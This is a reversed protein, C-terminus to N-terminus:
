SVEECRASAKVSRHTNTVDEGVAIAGRFFSAADPFSRNPYCELIEQMIKDAKLAENGSYICDAPDAGNHYFDFGVKRICSGMRPVLAQNKLYQFITKLERLMTIVNSSNKVRPVSILGSPFQLSYYIKEQPKEYYGPIMMLPAYTKLGYHEIYLQQILTTPACSESNDAVKFGVGAGLGLSVIYKATEILYPEIKLHAKALEVGLPEWMFNHSLQAFSNKADQWANEFLFLRLKFWDKDVETQEFWEKAFFLVESEWPHTTSCQAALQTFTKWQHQLMKPLSAEISFDKKLRTHGNADSIKPLMFISRAGSTLNLGQTFFPMGRPELLDQAGIIKGPRLVALSGIGDNSEHFLECHRNLILTIPMAGYNLCHGEPLSIKGDHIIKEGYGYRALYLKFHDPPSLADIIAYLKPEVQAVRHKVEKWTLETIRNGQDMVM